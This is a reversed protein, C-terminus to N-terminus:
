FLEHDSEQTEYMAQGIFPSRARISKGKWLLLVPAFSLGIAVFALLSSAWQFGLNTYLVQEALPLFAGTLNEGFAVGGLASAAYLSYSDEVYNSAATVVTFIGVGVLALGVTPAMWHVGPWATWAYVFLGGALGVFSAPVSLYLRGEPVFDEDADTGALGGGAVAEDGAGDRKAAATRFYLADAAPSVAGGVTVGAVLGAQVLGSRWAEWGYLEGYVRPISQTFLLANGFCFASWVTCCAVLPETALMRLPRAAAAAATRWAECCGGGAACPRAEGEAYVAAGTLRRVRAARAALIAPGRTEPLLFAALPLAAGALLALLTWPVLRWADPTQARATIAGGLVPGATVGLLLAWIYLAVPRSRARPGRWVDGVIGGTINQLAGAAAGTLARPGILAAYTPALSQPLHTLTLLTLLALYPHRIGYTEMLPLLILPILGAALTWTFIPYYTPPITSTADPALDFTSTLFPATPALATGSLGSLFTIFCAIITIRWKKSSPWNFPNEPDDPGDWTIMNKEPHSIPPSPPAGDRVSHALKDRSDYQDPLRLQSGATGGREEHQISEAKEMDLFVPGAMKM